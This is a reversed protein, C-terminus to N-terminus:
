IWSDTEDDEATAPDPEDPLDQEGGAPIDSDNGLWAEETVVVDDDTSRGASRVRDLQNELGREKRELFDLWERLAALGEQVAEDTRM